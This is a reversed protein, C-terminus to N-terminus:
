GAPDRDALRARSAVAVAGPGRVARNDPHSSTAAAQTAAIGGPGRLGGRDDPSEAQAVPVLLASGLAITGILKTRANMDEGKTQIARQSRSPASTRLAASYPGLLPYVGAARLLTQEHLEPDQPRELHDVVSTWDIQACGPLPRQEREQQQM